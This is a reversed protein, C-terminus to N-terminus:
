TGSLRRLNFTISIIAQELRESLLARPSFERLFFFRPILLPPVPSLVANEGERGGRRGGERKGPTCSLESGM